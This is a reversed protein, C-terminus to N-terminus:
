NPELARDEEDGVSERMHCNGEFIAGDEDFPSFEGINAIVFGDIEGSKFVDSVIKTMISFDM